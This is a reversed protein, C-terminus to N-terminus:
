APIAEIIIFRARTPVGTNLQFGGKALLGGYEETAHREVLMVLGTLNGTSPLNRPIIGMGIALPAGNAPVARRCDVLIECAQRDDLRSDRKEHALGSM